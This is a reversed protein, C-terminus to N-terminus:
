FQVSMRVSDIKQANTSEFRFGNTKQSKFICEISGFHYSYNRIGRNPSDNTVLYWPEDTNSYNSVVITTKFLKRTFLVNPVVKAKYKLPSIDRLHNSIRKGSSDYFSYIFFSKARFCYFHGIDQIFSFLTRIDTIIDLFRKKFFHGSTLLYCLINHFDQLSSIFISYYFPSYASYDRM